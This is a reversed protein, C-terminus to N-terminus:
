LTNQNLWSWQYFNIHVSCIIQGWWRDRGKLVLKEKAMVPEGKWVTESDCCIIHNEETELNVTLKCSIM